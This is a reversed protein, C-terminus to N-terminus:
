PVRYVMYCYSCAVLIFIVRSHLFRLKHRTRLCVAGAHSAFTISATRHSILSHSGPLNIIKVAGLHRVVPMHYIFKGRLGGSYRCGLIKVFHPFQEPFHRYVPVRHPTRIIIKVANRMIKVSKEPLEPKHYKGSIRKIRGVPVRFWVHPYKSGKILSIRKRTIGDSKPYIVAVVTRNVRRAYFNNIGQRGSKCVYGRARGASRSNRSLHYRPVYTRNGSQM